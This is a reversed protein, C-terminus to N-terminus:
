QMQFTISRTSRFVTSRGSSISQPIAHDRLPEEKGLTDPFV